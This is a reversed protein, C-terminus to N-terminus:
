YVTVHTSLNRLLYGPRVQYSAELHEGGVFGADQGDNPMNDSEFSNQAKNNSAKTSMLSQLTLYGFTLAIDYSTVSQSIVPVQIARAKGKADLNRNSQIELIKKRLEAESIPSKLSSETWVREPGVDGSPQAINLSDFAVDMYEEDSFEEFTNNREENEMRTAANSDFIRRHGITFAAPASAASFAM